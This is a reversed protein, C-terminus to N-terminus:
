PGAEPRRRSARLSRRLAALALCAALLAGGAACGGGSGHFPEPQPEALTTFSATSPAWSGGISNEAYCRFYYATEPSLDSASVAFLAAQTGLDEVHDWNGPTQGGDNDGWYIRVAPPATVALTSFSETSPAWAGGASNEAYCRFYYVTPAAGGVDMVEGNLTASNWTVDTAARNAMTNLSLGTIGSSFTEPGKTGLDVRNDWYLACTGAEHDANGDWGSDFDEALLQEDTMRRCDPDFLCELECTGNDPDEFCQTPGADADSEAVDQTGGDPQGGPTDSDGGNTECAAGFAGVTFALTLAVAVNVLRMM